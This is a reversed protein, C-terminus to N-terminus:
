RGECRRGSSVRLETPHANGALYLSDLSTVSSLPRFRIWCIAAPRLKCDMTSAAWRTNERATFLLKVCPRLAVCTQAAQRYTAQRRFLFGVMSMSKASRSCVSTYDNMNRIVGLQLRPETYMFSLLSSFHDDADRMVDLRFTLGM